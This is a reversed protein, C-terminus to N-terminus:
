SKGDQDRLTNFAHGARSTTSRRALTLGPPHRFARGPRGNEIGQNNVARPNDHEFAGLCFGRHHERCSSFHRRRRDDVANGRQLRRWNMPQPCLLPRRPELELTLGIPWV